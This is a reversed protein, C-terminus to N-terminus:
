AMAAAATAPASAIVRALARPDHEAALADSAKAANQAYRDWRAVVRDVAAARQASRPEGGPHLLDLREAVV